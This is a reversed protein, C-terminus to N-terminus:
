IPDKMVNKTKCREPGRNKGGGDKRREEEKTKREIGIDKRKKVV